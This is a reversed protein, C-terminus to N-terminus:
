FTDWVGSEDPNDLVERAEGRDGSTGQGGGRVESQYM